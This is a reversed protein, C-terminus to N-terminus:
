TGGPPRPHSGWNCYFITCRVKFNVGPPLL